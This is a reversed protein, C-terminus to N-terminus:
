NRNQPTFRVAYGGASVLNVSLTSNRNVTKKEIVVHKPFKDSDPADAYIEATYTGDGLFHLSLELTRPTWNTMSGLFWQNGNRRAITIFEGPMG